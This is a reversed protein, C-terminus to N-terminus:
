SSCSLALIMDKIKVSCGSAYSHLDFYALLAIYPTRCQVNITWIKYRIPRVVECIACGWFSKMSM